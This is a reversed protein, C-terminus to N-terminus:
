IKTLFIPKHYKGCILMSTQYFNSKIYKTITSKKKSIVLNNKLNDALVPLKIRNQNDM